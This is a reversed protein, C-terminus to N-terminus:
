VTEAYRCIHLNHTRTSARCFTLEGMKNFFWYTLVIFKFWVSSYFLLKQTIIVNIQSNVVEYYTFTVFLFYNKISSLSRKIYYPTDLEGSLIRHGMLTYLPNMRRPAVFDPHSSVWQFKLFLIFYVLGHNYAICIASSDKIVPGLLSRAYKLKLCYLQKFRISPRFLYIILYAITENEKKAKTGFFYQTSM